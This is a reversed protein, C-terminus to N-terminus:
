EAPVAAPPQGAKVLVLDDLRVHNRIAANVQDLTVAQVLRPYDDLYEPGYGRELFALLRRALGGSTALGLKFQGALTVKRQALEEPSLGDKVWRDLERRTSAIGRELLEPAFTAEVQWYGDTLSDAATSAYIAYTLGEVDRVTAMLRSTFDAGLEATGIALPLYDPDTRRLGTAIGWRVSLSPKGPMAVLEDAGPNLRPAPPNAPLAAGGKWGDFARAVGAEIAAADADGVAVLIMGAPGFVRQHFAKLDAVTTKEVDAIRAAVSPQYNPHEPPFLLQQLREESRFEVDELARQLAGATQVKLKALEGEDFAPERLEEALVGLVLPMDKKLFRASFGLRHNGSSFSLTAGVRELEDAIAFKGRGQTGKDLMEGVLEAVASNDHPNFVDGAPLSGELTVVDRLGTRLTFTRIGAPRAQVVAAAYNGAATAAPAAVAASAATPVDTAGVAGPERYHKPGAPRWRSQAGGSGAAASGAAADTVPIFWGTTSRAAVLYQAAVRQVDAPTVQRIRDVFTAYLTWDGMAVWENLEQMVAQSGDRHFANRAAIQSIARAVEDAPVGEKQVRAIEALIRDEVKQHAVGPALIAYIQFLGPDRLLLWNVTQGIALNEDILARYLRSTKGESLLSQLVDLARADADAGRPAKFAVGVVGVEGPRTVVTRRPGTQPPEETYVLPIPQASAALPGFHKAILGLVDEPDFDGAVIATANDPWYYTDRFAHLKEIPVREIDSRWGITPISYPHAVFATSWLEKDLAELPYNEGREYENRVVTMEAQRDEDHLWANRMRDAEIEIELELHESPLSAFYNTRDMWTSANSNAGVRDLLVTADTGHPRNHRPSGKFMLHELMHTAGTTGPAENRSGVRYTVDFTAVPASHDEALLVTLGNPEYRYEVVGGAEQVRTFGAPVAGAAAVVVALPLLALAARSRRVAHHM